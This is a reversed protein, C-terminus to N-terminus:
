EYILPSYNMLEQGEYSTHVVPLYDKTNTSFLVEAGEEIHLNVNSKLHIPGTLFVGKPIIVKGGGLNSCSDIAKKIASTNLTVGDAIAGFDVINFTRDTFNLTKISNIISDAQAFHDPKEVPKEKQKCHM